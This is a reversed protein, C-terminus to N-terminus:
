PNKDFITLYTQTAFLFLKFWILNKELFLHYFKFKSAVM